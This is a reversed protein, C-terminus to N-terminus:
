TGDPRFLPEPAALMRPEDVTAVRWVEELDVDHYEHILKDRMGAILRWPISPHQSRFERSLRKTAEGLIIIQHLIAFETRPDRLFSAQDFGEALEVIM